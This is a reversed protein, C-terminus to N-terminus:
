NVGGADLVVEVVEFFPEWDPEDGVIGALSCEADDRRLYVEVTDGLPHGPEDRDDVLAHVIVTPTSLLSWVLM